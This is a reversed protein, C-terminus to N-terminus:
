PVSPTEWQEAQRGFGDTVAKGFMWLGFCVAAAAAIVSVAYAFTKAKKRGSEKQYVNKEAM